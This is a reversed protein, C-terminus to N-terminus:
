PQIIKQAGEQSHTDGCRPQYFYANHVIVEENQLGLRQTKPNIFSQMISHYVGVIDQSTLRLM